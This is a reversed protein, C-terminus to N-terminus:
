IANKLISDLKKHIKKSSIQSQSFISIRYQTWLRLLENSLIGVEQLSLALQWYWTIEEEGRAEIRSCRLRGKIDNSGDRVSDINCAPDVCDFGGVGLFERGLRDIPEVYASGGDGAMDVQALGDTDTTESFGM